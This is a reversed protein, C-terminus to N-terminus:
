AWGQGEPWISSVGEGGGGAGRCYECCDESTTGVPMLSSTGNFHFVTIRVTMDMLV